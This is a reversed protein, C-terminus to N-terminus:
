LWWLEASSDQRCRRFEIKLCSLLLVYYLKGSSQLKESENMCLESLLLKCRDRSFPFIKNFMSWCCSFSPLCSNVCSVHMGYIIHNMHKQETQAEHM